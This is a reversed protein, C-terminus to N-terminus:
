SEEERPLQFPTTGMGVGKSHRCCGLGLIGTLVEEQDERQGSSSSFTVLSWASPVPSPYLALCGMIGSCGERRAPVSIVFTLSGWAAGPHRVQLGAPTGLVSRDDSVEIRMITFDPVPPDYLYVNSDLQSQAAPFIKSSSPAPTYNLMECLTLVDIFKPTLGARVTNDSCAM